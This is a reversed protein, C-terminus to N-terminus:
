ANTNSEITNEIHEHDLANEVMQHAKLLIETTLVDYPNGSAIISRGILVTEPFFDKVIDYDHLVAIITKGAAFWDRILQMLIESTATDVAAFPEDLLFVDANQLMARAFLVRQFQGGSLSGVHRNEFGVLGVQDLVEEIKLHDNKSFSHFVGNQQWLGMAIIDKVNIPFQRDIETLQPLYTINSRNISSFHINGQIPTLIGMILKLLTSKGGGNPGIIATLSGKAFSHTINKLVKHQTYSFSVNDVTIIKPHSKDLMFYGLLAIGLGYPPRYKHLKFTPNCGNYIFEYVGKEKL